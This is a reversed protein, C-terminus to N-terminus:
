ENGAAEAVVKELDLWTGQCAVEGAEPRTQLESLLTAVPGRLPAMFSLPEGSVPHTLNLLAAHLAPHCLILDSRATAEAEIKQGQEKTRAYVLNPHNMAPRPPDDLERRGIPQGGYIIDGVIPHALYSMHVRIQHTRGTKLEVELLTYGRYRRRVRYLTVAHKALGGHRVAYAERITPHKGIPADVVGGQSRVRGHVLALYM